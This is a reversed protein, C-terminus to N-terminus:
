MEVSRRDRDFHAVDRDDGSLVRVERMSFTTLRVSLARPLPDRLPSSELDRKVGSRRGGILEKREGSTIECRWPLRLRLDSVVPSM